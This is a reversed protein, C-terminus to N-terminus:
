RVHTEFVPETRLDPCDRFQRMLGTGEHHQIIILIASGSRNVDLGHVQVKIYRASEFIQKPRWAQRKEINASFQDWGQSRRYCSPKSLRIWENVVRLMELQRRARPSKFRSRWRHGVHICRQGSELEKLLDPHVPNCRM